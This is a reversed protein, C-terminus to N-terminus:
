SNKFFPDPTKTTTLIQGIQNKDRDKRTTVNIVPRIPGRIYKIKNM